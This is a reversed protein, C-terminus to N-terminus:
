TLAWLYKRSKEDLQAADSITYLDGAVDRVLLAGGALSRPWEDLATQFTREKGNVEVRWNRIEIEKQLSLIRHIELTFGSVVLAEELAERSAPSLANLDRILAQEKGDDDALSIYADPRRWPFCLRPRVRTRDGDKVLFLAHDAGRELAIDTKGDQMAKEENNETDLM